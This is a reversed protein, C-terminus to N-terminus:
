LEGEPIRMKPKKPEKCAKTLEKCMLNALGQEKHEGEKIMGILDEEHEGILGSCYNELVKGHHKREHSSLKVKGAIYDQKKIWSQPQTGNQDSLLYNTMDECIDEFLEVYKLESDHFKINKGYRNGKSDLRGRMDLSNRPKEEQEVLKEQLVSQLCDGFM